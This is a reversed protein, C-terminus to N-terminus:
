DLGESGKTLRWRIGAELNVTHASGNILFRARTPMATGQVFLALRSWQSQFGGTLVLSSRSTEDDVRAFVSDQAGSSTYTGLPNANQIVSIAFGIGAYPRVRGLQVPFAMLQANYRRLDKLDVPRAGGNISPDFVASRTDFFSQEVSLYLGVRRQTILWEGGVMPANVTESASSFHSVGGKAGWFWSDEFTGGSTSAREIRQARVATPALAAAALSLTLISRSVGSRHRMSFRTLTDGRRRPLASFLM